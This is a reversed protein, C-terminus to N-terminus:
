SLTWVVFLIIDSLVLPIKLGHFFIPASTGLTKTTFVITTLFDAPGFPGHWNSDPRPYLACIIYLKFRKFLQQFFTDPLRGHRLQYCMQSKILPTRIANRTRIGGQGCFPIAPNKNLFCPQCM